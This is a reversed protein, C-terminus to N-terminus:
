RHTLPDRDESGRSGDEARDAQAASHGDQEREAQEARERADRQAAPHQDGEAECGDCECPPPLVFSTVSREARRLVLFSVAALVFVHPRV